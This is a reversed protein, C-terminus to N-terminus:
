TPNGDEDYGTVEYEDINYNSREEEMIKDLKQRIKKITEENGGLVWIKFDYETKTM